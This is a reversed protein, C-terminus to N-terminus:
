RRTRVVCRSWRRAGVGLIILLAGFLFAYGGIVWRQAPTGAGAVLFSVLGMTCAVAGAAALTQEERALRRTRIAGVVELCGTAVAWAAIVSVLGIASLRPSFSLTLVGTAVSVM